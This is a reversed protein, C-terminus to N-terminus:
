FRILVEVEDDQNLGAASADDTDIHFALVGNESVKIHADLICSKDGKISVQVLDGDEVQWEKALSPNLHIHREAIICVSELTVEGNEGVITITASNELDGSKRVPPNLGLKRADSRAIEVQNYNRCSGIIRVNEIIGKETKLTVTENAAFDGVQTLDYKKTLDHSFLKKYIDSTLHVHRNSIGVKVLKKMFRVKM